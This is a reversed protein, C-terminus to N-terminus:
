VSAIVEMIIPGAARADDSIHFAASVRDEAESAQEGTAAHLRALVDGARVADGPKALRDVGVEYDINSDKRLRGAGLDRIVEGLLRADCARVYGSRTTKIEKVIPATHDSAAKREFKALDAGQAVLMENWKALPKGSALCDAALSQGANLSEARGTQALMHAACAIVLEKLDQLGDENIKGPTLCQVSEKVELWNGAARGLPTDMNTILARTNVGCSNGLAVMATALERASKQNQMFAATGCKVDLVLAALGEALKKSLISAVILPVSPVTGTVDRLAYMAKDAPVM